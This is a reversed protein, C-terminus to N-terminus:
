KNKLFCRVFHGKSIEEMKPKEFSCIKLAKPCRPHFACGSPRNFPLPPSGKIASLTKDYSFVPVCSILTETYPHAPNSFLDGCLAQEVITGSYMVAAKLCVNKVLSLNHSILILATGTERMMKEILKMISAQVTVDLATTPEDAILLKPSCSVASAIMVRQRMGGSLQHPYSYVREKSATIGVKELLKASVSLADKKSIIKHKVLSESIQFGITLLPNLATLPDQFIMSIDKGRLNQLDRQSMKVLDQSNFLISGSDIIFDRDLLRMISLATVSKGSGSEGVIAFAEGSNVIFSVEELIKINKKDEKLSVSLNKIEIVPKKLREFDM